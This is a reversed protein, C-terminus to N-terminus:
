KTKTDLGTDIHPTKAVNPIWLASEVGYINERLWNYTNLCGASKTNHNLYKQRFFALGNQLLTEDAEVPWDGVDLRWALALQLWMYNPFM